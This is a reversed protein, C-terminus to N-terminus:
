DQMRRGTMEVFVDELTPQTIRLDLLTNGDVELFRVLAAVAPAAPQARLHYRGDVERCDEVAELQKLHDTSVPKALSVEIRTGKGSRLVLERPTGLEIVQGRDIIAVRDCLREAEEIYHTTLLTTRREERFNGILTYIDRRLQADLGVTPEDLLVLEPNNVMALALALRQKQGGSLKEYFARRKERLGFRELLLEPSAPRTYFSAFLKVAEEVRIKDPLVTAQLQAGIRERLSTPERAPDMGCVTVRGADPQRLGELIEITTTKGAGNPGLLGFVEGAKIEFTVGRLAELDDYRKCLGEVQVIASSPGSDFM